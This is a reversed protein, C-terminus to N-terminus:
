EINTINSAGAVSSNINASCGKKQMSRLGVDSLLLILYLSGVCVFFVGYVNFQQFINLQLEFVDSVVVVTLIVQLCYAFFTNIGFVLGYSDEPLQKAIEASCFVCWCASSYDSLCDSLCLFHSFVFYEIFIPRFPKIDLSSLCKFKSEMQVCRSITITFSYFIFFIVYGAYSLFRDSVNVTLFIAASVCLSMTFLVGLVKLKTNLFSMHLRSALLAVIASLLTTLAEVAGNWM